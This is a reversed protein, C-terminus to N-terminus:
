NKNYLEALKIVTQMFEERVELPSVIELEAGMQLIRGIFEKNVEVSVSFEGYEEGDYTGYPLITEQTRHLKKTEVLKFM